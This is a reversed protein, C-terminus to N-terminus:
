AAREAAPSMEAAVRRLLVRALHMRTAASAQLDDNPTLDLAALAADIGQGVLAEAARPALVPTAGASFFALRMATLAGATRRGQAALGIIAYDGSRRTLEAFACVTDPPPRDIEIAVLLEDPRLATSFLGTFFHDAPISRQGSASQAIVRGELALLCAPLEAAPDAHALSGGLTGRSRIAPHAIHAAARALLPATQAIDPNVLLEAHRTLAGLRLQGPGLTIGRLEPLRGIDILLDPSALRLNMAPLLSQGGAIPRAADGHQALLALAQDLTDPRVYDFAPAKM